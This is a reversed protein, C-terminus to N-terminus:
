ADGLGARELLTELERESGIDPAQLGESALRAVLDPPLPALLEASRAGGFRRLEVDILGLITAATTQRPDWEVVVGGPCPACGLVGSPRGAGGLADLLFPLAEAVGPFVAVAILAAGHVKAAGLASAANGAPLTVLGYTRGARASTRWSVSGGARRVAAEVDDREARTAERGFSVTQFTVHM